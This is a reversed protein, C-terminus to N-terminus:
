VKWAVCALDSSDSNFMYVVSMGSVTSTVDGKRVNYANTSQPPNNYSLHEAYVSINDCEEQTSIAPSPIPIGAIQQNSSDAYEHSLHNSTATLPCPIHSMQQNNTDASGYDGHTSNAPSPQHISNDVNGIEFSVPGENTDTKPIFKCLIVVGVFLCCGTVSSIIIAINTTSLDSSTSCYYKETDWYSLRVGCDQSYDGISGNVCVQNEFKFQQTACGVFIYFCRKEM